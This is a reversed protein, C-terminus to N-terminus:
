GADRAQDAQLNESLLAPERLAAAKAIPPPDNPGQPTPPMPFAIEWLRVFARLANAGLTRISREAGVRLASGKNYNPNEIVRM